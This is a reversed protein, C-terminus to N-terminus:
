SGILKLVLPLTKGARRQWNDLLDIKEELQEKEDGNHDELLERIREIRDKGSAVHPQIQESAFGSAIKRLSTEALYYDKRDGPVYVTRIAGFSRLIKLGQSTSGKSINLRLRCDDLCLPETSIFLIGYIEGVSRPLNLVDAMRVFLAIVESELEGLGKIQVPTDEMINLIYQVFRGSVVRLGRITRHGGFLRCPTKRFFFM